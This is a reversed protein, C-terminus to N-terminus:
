DKIGALTRQREEEPDGQLAEKAPVRSKKLMTRMIETAKKNPAPPPPELSGFPHRIKIVGRRRM